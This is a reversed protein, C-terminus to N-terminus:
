ADLSRLLAEGYERGAEFVFNPTIVFTWVLLYAFDMTLMALFQPYTAISQTLGVWSYPQPIVLWWGFSTLVLLILIEVLVLPKLGYLNRRFGYSANENHLLSFESGRRLEILKKTASRYIEDARATDQAEDFVNPLALGTLKKLALHYRTKTVADLTTDRHRLLITTPWGAWRGLLKVEARKGLSRALSALFYLACAAFFAFAASHSMREIVTPFISVVALLIPALAILSPYIRAIRNYSDFLNSLTEHMTANTM